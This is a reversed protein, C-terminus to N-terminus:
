TSPSLHCEIEETMIGDPRVELLEAFQEQDAATWVFVGLGSLRAAGIMTVLERFGRQLMVADAASSMALELWRERIPAPSDVGLSFGTALAPRAGKAAELAPMERTSVLTREALGHRELRVAVEEIRAEEDVAKWDLVILSGGRALLPLARELPEGEGGPALGRLDSATLERLPRRTGELSLEDDHVLVMTGDGLCNVDFEIGPAGVEIARELAALSNRPREPGHAGNHAVAVPAPFPFQFSV